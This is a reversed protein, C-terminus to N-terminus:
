PDRPLARWKIALLRLWYIAVGLWLAAVLMLSGARASTKGTVTPWILILDAAVVAVTATLCIVMLTALASVSMALARSRMQDRSTITESTLPLDRLVSRTALYGCANFALLLGFIVLPTESRGAGIIAVLFWGAFLTFRAVIALRLRAAIIPKQADSVVHNWNSGHPRKVAVLWGGPVPKFYNEEIGRPLWRFRSRTQDDTMTTLLTV